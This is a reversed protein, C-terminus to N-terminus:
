TKMEQGCYPCYHKNSKRRTLRFRQVEVRKNDVWEPANFSWDTFDKGRRNTPPMVILTKQATGNLRAAAAQAGVRGPEDNDYCIWVVKDRFLSTMSDNWNSAGGTWTVAPFGYSRACLCDFEGEVLFVKRSFVFDKEPFLRVEGKGKMNLAKRKHEDLWGMRRVNRCFGFQDFIPITIRKTTPELGLKYDTAVNEMLNREVLLYEWARKNKALCKVYADIRSDPVARVIDAYLKRQAERYSWGEMQSVLDVIDRIKHGCGHCYGKGSPSIHLSPQSDGHWPCEVNQAVDMWEPFYSGIIEIPNVEAEIAATM